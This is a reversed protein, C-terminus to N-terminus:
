KVKLLSYAQNKERMLTRVSGLCELPWYLQTQGTKSAGNRQPKFPAGLETQIRPNWTWLHLFILLSVPCPYFIRSLEFPLAQIQQVGLM